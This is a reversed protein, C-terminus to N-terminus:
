TREGHGGLASLPERSQGDPGANSGLARQGPPGVPRVPRGLRDKTMAWRRPDNAWPSPKGQAECQAEILGLDTADRPDREHHGVPAALRLQADGPVAFQDIHKALTWLDRGGGKALWPPPRRFMNTTRKALEDFGHKKLLDKVAGHRKQDWTPKAGGNAEAYLQDFLKTYRPHEPNPADASRRATSRKEKEIESRLDVDCADGHRKETVVQSSGDRQNTALRVRYAATREAGTSARPKWDESWGLIRVDGNDQIEILGVELDACAGLGQNIDDVTCQLQDAMLRPRAHKAPVLGQRLEPRGNLCLLLLFVERGNRGAARVKPNSHINAALKIWWDM